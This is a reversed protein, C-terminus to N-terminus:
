GGPSSRHEGYHVRSTKVMSFAERSRLRGYGYRTMGRVALWAKELSSTAIRGGLNDYGRARMNGLIGRYIEAAVAVSLGFTAPLAPIAEWASRYEEEALLEVAKLAKRYAEGTADQPANFTGSNVLQKLDSVSVGHTALIDSPIYVRDMALDPKVDRLINTIQMARSLAAARSLKWSDTEGFLHCMMIGVTSAVSCSYDTLEQVSQIRVRGTDSLVGDILTNIVCFSMGSRSLAKALENLWAFDSAGCDYASRVISRWDELLAIKLERSLANDDALDDTIRCLVYLSGVLRRNARSFLHSSFSFSRSHSRFFAWPDNSAAHIVATLYAHNEVGDARARAPAPAEGGPKSGSSPYAESGTGLRGYLELAVVLVGVSLVAAPWVGAAVLMGFPLAFLTVYYLLLWRSSLRSEWDRVGTIDLVFSLIVGTFLWGALNVWPMGYYAGEVGWTWYMVLHSMAPDLALDWITLLIGTLLWHMPRSMSWETLRGTIIHASLVMTFWSLPIVVPVLGFWKAGLLSTYLYEGFPFGTNTGVLESSLSLVYVFLLGPVWKWGASRVLFLALVVGSLWVQSQAFFGYSVAYFSASSPFRALNEPHLGFYWYGALAMVTFVALLVLGAVSWVDARQGPELYLRRSTM